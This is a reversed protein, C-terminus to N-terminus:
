RLRDLLAKDRELSALTRRPVLGSPRLRMIAAYVMWGAAAGILLTALIATIAPHVGVFDRMAAVLAEFLIVVGTVSIMAGGIVAGAGLGLQIAKQRAEAKALDLEHRMLQAFLQGLQTFLAHLPPDRDVSSTM